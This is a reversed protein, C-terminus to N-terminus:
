KAVRKPRVRFHFSLSQSPSNCSLQSGTRKGRCRGSFFSRAGSQETVAFSCRTHTHPHTDTHTGLRGCALERGCSCRRSASTEAVSGSLLLRLDPPTLRRSNASDTTHMFQPCRPARM